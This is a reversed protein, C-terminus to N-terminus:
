SAWAMNEPKLMTSENERIEQYLRALEAEAAKTETQANQYVGARSRLRQLQKKTEEYLKAAHLERVKTERAEASRRLGPIYRRLVESPSIYPSPRENPLLEGRGLRELKAELSAISERESLAPAHHNIRCQMIEAQRRLDRARGRLEPAATEILQKRLQAKDYDARTKATSAAAKAHQWDNKVKPWQRLAEWLEGVTKLDKLKGGDPEPGPDVAPPAPASRLAKAWGERSRRTGVDTHWDKTTRAAAKLIEADPQPTEAKKAAAAVAKRYAAVAQTTPAAVDPVQIGMPEMPGPPRAPPRIGLVRQDYDPRAAIEEVETEFPM